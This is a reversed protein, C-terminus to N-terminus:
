PWQINRVGTIEDRTM